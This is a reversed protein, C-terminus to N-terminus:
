PAASPPPPAPPLGNAVARWRASTIDWGFGDYLTVDPPPPATFDHAPAARWREEAPRWDGFCDAQSAHAALAAEVRATDAATLPRRREPCAPDPWFCGFRREGGITCYSAFQGHAPPTDLMAVARAVACAAADHDPHGGEYSHTLVLAAGALDHRLRAVIADLEFVAAKDTVGYRLCNGRFGLRDLAVDLEAARAAAYDERTAFGLRRADHGDAPAGDTLVVVVGDELRALLSGAFLTEDDPHAVVVVVREAIPLGAALRAAWDTLEAGGGGHRGRRAM